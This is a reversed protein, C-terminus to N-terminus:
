KVCRKVSAMHKAQGLVNPKIGHHIYDTTLTSKAAAAKDNGRFVNSTVTGVKNEYPTYLVARLMDVRGAHKAKNAAVNGASHREAIM